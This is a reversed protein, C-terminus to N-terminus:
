RTQYEERITAERVAEEFDSLSAVTHSKDWEEYIDNIIKLLEEYTLEEFNKTEM